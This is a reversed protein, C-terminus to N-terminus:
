SAYVLYIYIYIYYVLCSSVWAELGWEVGSPSKGINLHTRNDSSAQLQGTAICFLVLAPLPLSIHCRTGFCILVRGGAYRRVTTRGYITTATVGLTIIPRYSSASHQRMGDEWEDGGGRGGKGM